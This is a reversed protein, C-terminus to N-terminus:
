VSRRFVGRRVVVGRAGEEEGDGDSVRGMGSGSGDGECGWVEVEVEGEMKGGEMEEAVGRVRGAQGRDGCEMVVLEARVGEGGAFKLIRHYFVDERRVAGAGGLGDVASLSLPPPVLALRPEFRRVSRATTGNRFQAPSIYPPNSILITITNKDNNNTTTTTSIESHTPPRDAPESPNNTNTDESAGMDPFLAEIGKVEGGVGTSETGLVDGRLFRVEGRAREGVTGLRLNHVLNRRALSLARTSIDVGYIALRPFSPALLAHLLLPICGTGTCLDIIRLTPPQTKPQSQSPLLTSLLLTATHTTLSETEPRPVLVGRECLVEVSGFPADGLIYQLPVGQARQKIMEHLRLRTDDGRRLGTKSKSKSIWGWRRGCAATTAYEALWRLENRASPLDRCERLLLPLLPHHAYAHRLLPTPLRMIVRLTEQPSM